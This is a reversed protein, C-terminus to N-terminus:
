YDNQLSAIARFKNVFEEIQAQNFKGPVLKNVIKGIRAESRANRWVELGSQDSDPLGLAQYVQGSARTFFVQENDLFNAVEEEGKSIFFEKTKRMNSFSLFGDNPSLDLLTVDNQISKGFLKLIEQAIPNQGMRKLAQRLPTSLYVVSESILSELLYDELFQSYKKM